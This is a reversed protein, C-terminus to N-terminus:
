FAWKGVRVRLAHALVLLASLGALCGATALIMVPDPRRHEVAASVLVFWLLGTLLLPQVVVLPLLKLATVQFAFALATLLVSWQWRRDRILDMFLSPRGARRMPAQRAAYHQLVSAIGFGMAAALAAGVGAALSVGDSTV